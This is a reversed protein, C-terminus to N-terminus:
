PPFPHESFIIGGSTIKIKLKIEQSWNIWLEELLDFGVRVRKIEIQNNRPRKLQNRPEWDIWLEELLDFGARGRKIEKYSHRLRTNLFCLLDLSEIEQDRDPATGRADVTGCAHSGQSCRITVGDLYQDRFTPASVYEFTETMDRRSKLNLLLPNPDTPRSRGNIIGGVTLKITRIVLRHNDRGGHMPLSVYRVAPGVDCTM